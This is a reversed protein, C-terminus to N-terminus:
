INNYENIKKFAITAITALAIIAIVMLTDEALGADPLENETKTQTQTPTQTTTLTQEEEEVIKSETDEELTSKSGQNEWDEDFFGSLDEAGSSTAFINIPKVFLVVGLILVLIMKLILEKRM